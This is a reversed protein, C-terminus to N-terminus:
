TMASSEEFPLPTTGAQIMAAQVAPHDAEAADIVVLIRGAAIEDEFKRRIPDPLASGMLGASWTGAAAGVLAIAAAGALTVGLAPIAVAVLGALLGASGGGVAGKLMAPVFDTSANRFNEPIREMELDSRAILAIDPEEVGCGRAAAIAASAIRLDNALYVHKTKM